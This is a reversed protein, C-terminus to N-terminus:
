LEQNINKPRFRETNVYGKYRGSEILDIKVYIVRNPLRLIVEKM